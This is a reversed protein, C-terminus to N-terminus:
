CGRAIDTRMRTLVAGLLTLLLGLLLVGSLPLAPVPTSGVPLNVGGQQPNIFDEFRALAAPIEGTLQNDFLKLVKLNALSGLAAPLLSTLKNGNLSLETM